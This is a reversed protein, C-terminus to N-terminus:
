PRRSAPRASPCSRRVRDGVVGPVLLERHLEVRRDVAGLEADVPVDREGVPLRGQGVLDLERGLEEEDLLRLRSSPEQSRPFGAGPSTCCSAGGRRPPAEGRLDIEDEVLTHLRHGGYSSSSSTWTAGIDTAASRLAIPSASATRKAVGSYLEEIGPESLFARSQTERGRAVFVAGSCAPRPRRRSCRPRRPQRPGPPGASLGRLWRPAPPPLRLQPRDHASASRRSRTPEFVLRKPLLQLLREVRQEGFDLRPRENSPRVFM